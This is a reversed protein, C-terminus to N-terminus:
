KGNLARARAKSFGDSVEKITENATKDMQMWGTYSLDHIMWTALEFNMCDGGVGIKLKSDYTSKCPYVSEYWSNIAQDFDLDFLKVINLFVVFKELIGSNSHGFKDQHSYKSGRTFQNDHRFASVEAVIENKPNLIYIVPLRFNVKQNESLKKRVEPLDSMNEHALWWSFYRLDDNPATPVVYYDYARFFSLKPAAWWVTEEKTSVPDLRIFHFEFKERLNNVALFNSIDSLFGYQEDVLDTPGSNSLLMLKWKGKNLTYPSYQLNYNSNDGNPHSHPNKLQVVDIQSPFKFEHVDEKTRVSGHREYFMDYDKQLFYGQTKWFWLNAEQYFSFYYEGTNDKPQSHVIFSCSFLLVFIYLNHLVFGGSL